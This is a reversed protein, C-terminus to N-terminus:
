YGLTVPEPVVYSSFALDMSSSTQDYSSIYYPPSYSDSNVDGGSIFSFSDSAADDLLHYPYMTERGASLYPDAIGYERDLGGWDLAFGPSPQEQVLAVNSLWEVPDMTITDSAYADHFTQAQRNLEANYPYLGRDGASRPGTNDLYSDWLTGRNIPNLNSDLFDDRMMVGTYTQGDTTTAFGLEDQGLFAAPTDTALLVVGDPYAGGAGGNLPSQSFNLPAGLL